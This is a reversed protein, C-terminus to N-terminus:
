EAHRFTARQLLHHQLCSVLGERVEIQIAPSMVGQRSRSPFSNAGPLVLLQLRTLRAFILVRAKNTSIYFRFSLGQAYGNSLTGSTQSKLLTLTSGGQIEKEPHWIGVSVAM